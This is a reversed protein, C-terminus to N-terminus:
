KGEETTDEETSETSEVVAHKQVFVRATFDKGESSGKVIVEELSDFDAQAKELTLFEAEELYDEEGKKLTASLDSEMKKYNEPTIYIGGYNNKIDDVSVVKISGESIAKEIRLQEKSKVIDDVNTFGKLIAKAIASSSNGGNLINEM